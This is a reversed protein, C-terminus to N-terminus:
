DTWTDSLDLGVSSGSPNLGKNLTLNNKVNLILRLHRTEILNIIEHKVDQLEQDQLEQDQLEEDQLVEAQPDLYM